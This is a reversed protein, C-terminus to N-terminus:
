AALTVEQIRIFFLIRHDSIDLDDSLGRFSDAQIGTGPYGIDVPTRDTAHPIYQDVIIHIYLDM